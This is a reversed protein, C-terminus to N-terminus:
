CFPVDEYYRDSRFNSCVAVDFGQFGTSGPPGSPGRPGKFGIPGVNGREGRTGDAGMKGPAGANGQPLLETWSAVAYLTFTTTFITLAVALLAYLAWQRPSALGFVTPRTSESASSPDEGIDDVPSEDERVEETEYEPM